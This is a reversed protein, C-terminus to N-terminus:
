ATAAVAPAGAPGNNDGGGTALLVVFAVVVAVGVAVAIWPRARRPKGLRHRDRDLRQEQDPSPRSAREFNEWGSNTM